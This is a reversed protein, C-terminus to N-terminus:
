KLRCAVFIKYTRLYRDSPADPGTGPVDKVEYGNPCLRQADRQCEEMEPCEVIRWTRNDPGPITTCATAVFSCSLLVAVNRIGRMPYMCGWAGCPPKM